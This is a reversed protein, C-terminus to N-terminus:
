TITKARIDRNKKSSITAAIEDHIKKFKDQTLKEIIVEISDQTENIKKNLQIKQYKSNEINENMVIELVEKIVFLYKENLSISGLYDLFAKEVLNKNINRKSYSCKYSNCRYYGIKKGSKSKSFNATFSSSFALIFM